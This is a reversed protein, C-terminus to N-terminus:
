KEAFTICRTFAAALVRAGIQTRVSFDGRSPADALNSCSRVYSCWYRWMVKGTVFWIMGILNILDPQKSTARVIGQRVPNYDVFYRIGMSSVQIDQGQLVGMIAAILEYAGIQTKRPKLTSRLLQSVKGQYCIRDRGRRRLGGITM